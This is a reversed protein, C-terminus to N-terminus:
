KGEAAPPTGEPAKDGEPAADQPPAKDSLSRIYALLQDIEKPKLIGQYPTMQNAYTEVVKTGPVLISERVYNDFSDGTMQEESLSSGDTFKVAHGYMNKWSPGTLRSGDVTHCAVCGKTKYLVAGIEASSGKPEAWDAVVKAYDDPQMVRIVATMESHQDGCYEACFVWHDDYKIGALPDPEPKGAFAKRPQLTGEGKFDIPEFWLSTYRNPMVDIKVRMDPIWFSHIVDISNFRLRVPRGAPVVFIPADTAGVALGQAAAESWGAMSKTDIGRTRTTEPSSAGNPYTISWNWKQATIALDIAAGPIVNAVAYGWFGEFFMWFFIITPFISWTLELPTHHSPSLPAPVGPRRRYKIVFYTMLAMLVVFAVTSIWFIALYLFDVHGGFSSTAPKRFWFNTWYGGDSLTVGPLNMNALERM